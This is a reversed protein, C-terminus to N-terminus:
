YDGILPENRIFDKAELKEIRDELNVIYSGLVKIIERTSISDVSQSRYYEILDNFENKKM